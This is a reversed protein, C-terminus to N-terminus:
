GRRDKERGENVSAGEKRMSKEIWGKKWDCRLEEVREETRGKKWERDEIRGRM